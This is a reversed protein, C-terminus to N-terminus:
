WAYNGNDIHEIFAISDWFKIGFILGFLKNEHLIAHIESFRTKKWPSWLWRVSAKIDDPNTLVNPEVWNANLTIGITGKQESRYTDNYIHYARAHSKILNHAVYYQGKSPDYHGPASVGIGYGSFATFFTWLTGYTVDQDVQDAPM